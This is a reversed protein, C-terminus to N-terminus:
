NSIYPDPVLAQIFEGTRYDIIVVISHQDPPPSAGAAGDGQPFTGSFVVTWVWKGASPPIAAGRFMNYDGSKQSVFSVPTTSLSQATPQAMEVARQSTLGGAPPSQPAATSGCASMALAASLIVVTASLRSLGRVL